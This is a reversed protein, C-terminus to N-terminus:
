QATCYVCDEYHCIGGGSTVVYEHNGLQVVKYPSEQVQEQITDTETPRVCKITDGLTYSNFTAESVEVQTMVNDTRLSFCMKDKDRMTGVLVYGNYDELEYPDFPKGNDNCSTALMALCMLMMAFIKKM